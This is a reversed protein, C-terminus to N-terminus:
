NSVHINTKEGNDFTHGERREEPRPTPLPVHADPACCLHLHDGAAGQLEATKAPSRQCSAHLDNFPTQLRSVAQLFM